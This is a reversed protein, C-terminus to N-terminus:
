LPTAQSAAFCPIGAIARDPEPPAWTEYVVRLVDESEVVEAFTKAERPAVRTSCSMLEVAEAEEDVRRGDSTTRLIM